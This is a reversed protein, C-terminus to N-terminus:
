RETATCAARPCARRERRTPCCRSITPSRRTRGPRSSSPSPTTGSRAAREAVDSRRAALRGDGAAARRSRRDGRAADRGLLAHRRHRSRAREATARRQRCRRDGGPRRQLDRGQDRSRQHLAQVGRRPEDSQGSRRRCRRAPRRLARDPVAPLEAHLRRGPRGERRRRAAALRGARPRRRAAPPLDACSRLVPLGRSGPFAVGHGRPQVLALDRARHRRAAPPAALGRFPAPRGPGHFRIADGRTSWSSLSHGPIASRRPRKWPVKGSDASPGRM